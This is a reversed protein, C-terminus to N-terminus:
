QAFSLTGINRNNLVISWAETLKGGEATIANSMDLLSVEMHPVVVERYQKDVVINVTTRDYNKGPDIGLALMLRTVRTEIRRSRGDLEELQQDNMQNVGDNGPM